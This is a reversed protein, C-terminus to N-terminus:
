FPPQRAPNPALIGTLRACDSIRRAHGVLALKADNARLRNVRVALARRSLHEKRLFTVQVRARVGLRRRQQIALQSAVRTERSLMTLLLAVELVVRYPSTLM